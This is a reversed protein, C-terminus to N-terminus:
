IFQCNSLDASSCRVNNAITNYQLNHLTFIFDFLRKCYQPASFLRHLLRLKLELAELEDEFKESEATRGDILCDISLIYREWNDSM